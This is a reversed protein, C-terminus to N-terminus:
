LNLRHNVTVVVVDGRRSLNRGNYVPWGGSGYAYGGGHFWVMVPRKGGDAAPTWVNLFLCDENDIKGEGYTPFITQIQRTFDTTRSGSPSYMQMCPAGLTTADHIGSWSELPRPPLFRLDGIPPAAYRLGLFAGVGEDELGQVKGSVTEVVPTAPPVTGASAIGAAAVPLTLLIALSSGLSSSAPRPRAHSM